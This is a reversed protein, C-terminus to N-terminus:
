IKTNHISLTDLSVLLRDRVIYVERPVESHSHCCCYEVQKSVSNVVYVTAKRTNTVIEDGINKSIITFVCSLVREM